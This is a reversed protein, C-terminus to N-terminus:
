GFRKVLTPRKGMVAIHCSFTSWQNISKVIFENFSVFVITPVPRCFSIVMPVSHYGRSLRVHCFATELECVVDRKKKLVSTPWFTYRRFDYFMSAVPWHTDVRLMQHNTRLSLIQLLTSLSTTKTRYYHRFILGIDRNAPKSKPVARSPNRTSHAYTKVGDLLKVLPSGSSIQAPLFRRM